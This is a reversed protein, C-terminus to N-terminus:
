TGESFSDEVKGVNKEVKRANGETNSVKRELMQIVFTM